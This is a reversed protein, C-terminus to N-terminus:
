QYITKNKPQSKKNTQKPDKPLHEQFQIVGTEIFRAFYAASFSILQTDKLSFIRGKKRNGM